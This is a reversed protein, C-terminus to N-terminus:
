GQPRTSRRNERKKLEFMRDKQRKDDSVGFLVGTIFEHTNEAAYTKALKVAESIAVSRDINSENFLMEWAAIRLINRVPLSLREFKWDVLNEDITSDIEPLNELVGFIIEKAYESINDSDNKVHNEITKEASESFGRSDIDFLLIFARKRSNSRAAM